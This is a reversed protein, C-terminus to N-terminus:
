SAAVGSCASASGDTMPNFTEVARFRFASLPSVVIIGPSVALM